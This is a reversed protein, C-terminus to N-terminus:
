LVLRGAPLTRLFKLTTRVLKNWSEIVDGFPDVVVKPNKRVAILGTDSHRVIKARRETGPRQIQKGIDNQVTSAMYLCRLGTDFRAQIDNWALDPNATM